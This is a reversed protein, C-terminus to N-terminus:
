SIAMKIFKEYVEGWNKWVRQGGMSENHFIFIFNGGVEKMEDLIPQLYSGVDKSKIHLYKKLTTDMAVFPFVKLDTIKEEILDYFYFPTATGARFGVQNPYGMSFDEKFGAKILQRYTKPLDIKIYHHRSKVVQRGLIQELRSKEISLQDENRASEYSPHLCIEAHQDLLQILSIYAPNKHSLNKDFKGYDGLLIFYLPKVHHLKHIKFQKDYTDYPDKSYGLHVLINQRFKKLDMKLLLSLTTAAIRLFGKHKYAYANDIDITPTFSFPLHPFGILPFRESLIKRVRLAWHNVVPRDLFNGKFAISEESSYRGYGDKVHPLYEEYRTVMYFSCAFPDFHMAGSNVDYFSPEKGSEVNGLPQRTIENEFLIDACEFFLEGGLPRKGYSFKPGPFEAFTNQNDTLTYEVKLIYKFIIDFAYHLRPGTNTVFILIM